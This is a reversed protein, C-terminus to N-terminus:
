AGIGMARLLEHKKVKGSSTKPLDAQVHVDGPWKFQVLRENLWRRVEQQLATQAEEGPDVDKPRVFLVYDEGYFEHPVGVACAEEIFPNQEALSEIERLGILYGGKKIIDRSRGTLVLTRNEDLYGVDGTKLYDGPGPARDIAGGQGLYGLFMYPTHVELEGADPHVPNGDNSAASVRLDVYPLVEGVSGQLRREATAPTESTIFTTESLAYNELLQIGFLQEFRHKTDLDIPATGLFCIKVIESAKVFRERETKEAIKVLGRVITPVLWLASVQFREVEQWFRLFTRGSFAEGLVVSGESALPILSLNFTGGLYSMPLLNFFRLGKGICDHFEMFARGSAWLRDSDFVLAKPEGTTGSTLLLIRSVGEIERPLSSGGDIWDCKGDTPVTLTPLGSDEVVALLEESTNEAVLCVAPDVLSLWHSLERAACQPYLPAYDLGARLTGILCLFNELGNPLLSVVGKAGGGSMGLLQGGLCGTLQELEGYDITRDHRADIAATADRRAAVIASFDRRFTPAAATM